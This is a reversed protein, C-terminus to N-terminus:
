IMSLRLGGLAVLGLVKLLDWHLCLILIGSTIALTLVRWDLTALDPTLLTLPCGHACGTQVTLPHSVQAPAERPIRWGM